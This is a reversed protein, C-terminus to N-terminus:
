WKIGCVLSVEPECVLAWSLFLKVGEISMFVRKRKSFCLELEVVYKELTLCNSFSLYKEIISCVSIHYADELVYNSM